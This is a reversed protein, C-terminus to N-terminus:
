IVRLLMKKEQWWTGGFKKLVGINGHQNSSVNGHLLTDGTVKPWFPKAHNTRVQWTRREEKTWNRTRILEDALFANWGWSTSHASEWLAVRPDLCGLTCGGLQWRCSCARAWSCEDLTLENFVLILHLVTVPSLPSFTAQHGNQGMENGSMCSLVRAWSFLSM